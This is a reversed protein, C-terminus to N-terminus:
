LCRNGVDGDQDGLDDRAVIASAAQGLQGYQKSSKGAYLSAMAENALRDVSSDNTITTSMSVPKSTLSRRSGHCGESAPSSIMALRQIVARCSDPTISVLPHRHDLTRDGGRLMATHRIAVPRDGLVRTPRNATTSPRNVEAAQRRRPLDAASALDLRPVSRTRCDM